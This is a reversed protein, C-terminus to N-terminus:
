GTFEGFASLCARVWGDGHDGAIAPELWHRASGPATVTPGSKDVAEPPMLRERITVLALAAKMGYSYWAHAILLDLILYLFPLQSGLPM